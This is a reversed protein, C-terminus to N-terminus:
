NKFSKYVDQYKSSMIKATYKHSFIYQIETTAEEKNIQTAKIIKEKLEDKNHQNYLYGVNTKFEAMIAQHSPINSLLMPLGVSMSELLTNALGETDSASIYYDSAVIYDYINTQFGPIIINETEERKLTSWLPGNGLMILGINMNALEKFTYVLLDPNKEPSFRGIFIFYKINEKMELKKRINARRKQDRNWIPMSTGNHICLFHWGKEHLYKEQINPACCIPIDIRNTFFNNLKIIISGKAKGYLIKQLENPYNHITYIKKYKKGLFSMLYLSRPCHAHFMEPELEKVTKKLRLYLKLFNICKNPSLQIIKIPLSEFDKIRSNQKEPIFTVISIDFTNYDIYKIINYM